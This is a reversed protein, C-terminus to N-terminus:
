PLEEARFAYIEKKGEKVLLKVEGAGILYPIFREYIDSVPSDSRRGFNHAYSGTIQTKNLIISGNKAAGLFKTRVYALLMQAQDAIKQRNAVQDLGKAVDLCSEVHGIALQLIEPHIVLEPSTPVIEPDSPMWSADYCLRAAEFIMAIKAVWASATTLRGRTRDDLISCARIRYDIADTYQDFLKQSEPTWRFAGRLHSLLSFQKVLGGVTAGDPQPRKL